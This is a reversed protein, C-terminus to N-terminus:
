LAFVNGVLWSYYNLVVVGRAGHHAHLRRVGDM